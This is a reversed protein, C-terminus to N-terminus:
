PLLKHYLKSMLLNKTSYPTVSLETEDKLGEKVQNPVHEHRQESVVVVEEKGSMKQVNGHTDFGKAGDQGGNSVVAFLDACKWWLSADCPERCM